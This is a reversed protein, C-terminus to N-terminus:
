FLIVKQFKISEDIFSIYLWPFFAMIYIKCLILQQTEKFGVTFQLQGQLIYSKNQMVPFHFTKVFIHLFYTHNLQNIYKNLLIITYCGSHKHVIFTFIYLQLYCYRYRLFCFLPSLLDVSFSETGINVYSVVRTVDYM